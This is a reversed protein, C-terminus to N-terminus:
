TLHECVDHLREIVGRYGKVAPFPHNGIEQSFDEKLSLVSLGASQDGERLNDGLLRDLKRTAKQGLHDLLDVSDCGLLGRPCISWPTRRVTSSLV